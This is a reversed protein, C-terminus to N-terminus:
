ERHAQQQKLTDEAVHRAFYRLFFVAMGFMFALGGLSMLGVDTGFLERLAQM